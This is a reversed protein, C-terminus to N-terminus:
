AASVANRRAAICRLLDNWSEVFLDRGEMQLRTALADVDVGAKSVEAVLRDAESADEGLAGRLKGHDGFALLTKEPMTNVTREAALASVYYSDPLAPDKTGTSAWLLRQPHAGAAALQEWRRSALMERYVRYTRQAVAVGLRNALDGSLLSATHADWRSIFLSAVSPVHPDLDAEVRREIGKLYAEMTGRYHSRSFLLTVNIPVGAFILEEIAVLGAQTGPVKILVNPHEARAHLAKAAAITAQADDALTPSVEISAFGDLGGTADYTPRFLDAAELIDVLALEFFLREPSDGHGRQSRIADDYSNTGSIAREFITPNSTLGTVSLDAVYRALTGSDLLD